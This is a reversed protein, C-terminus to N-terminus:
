YVVRQYSRSRIVFLLQGQDVCQVKQTINHLSAVLQVNAIRADRVIAIHAINM